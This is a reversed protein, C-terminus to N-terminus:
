TAVLPLRAIVTTGEGPPGAITVEGGCALARERIGVLGLSHPDSIKEPDVGCGNDAVTLEVSDSTRRCQIRVTDAKAHRIINTLTEQYIRFLATSREQDLELPDPEITLECQYGTRNEFERTQWKLAEALGLVDLVAPRLETSIKQVKGITEDIFRSMSGIKEELSKPNEALRREMWALDLKLATLDQGLEDHVERALRAKEEERVSQLRHSLNRLQSRVQELDRTRDQVKEELQDRYQALEEENRSRFIADAILGGISLLVEQSHRYWSPHTNTYLFLVGVMQDRSKLPVIYHGHATMDTFTREHRTDTFCDESMLLEGSEAVRGCLCDGYPVEQERELFEESFGGITTYLRLVKNEEDALFLGAKHEVKLEDFQTLIELAKQLMTRTPQPVQLAQAVEHLVQYERTMLSSSTKPENM